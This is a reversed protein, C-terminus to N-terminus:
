ASPPAPPVSAGSTSKGVFSARKVWLTLMSAFAGDFELILIEQVPSATGMVVATACIVWAWIVGTTIMTIDYRRM